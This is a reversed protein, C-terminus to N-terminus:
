PNQGGWGGGVGLFIIHERKKKDLFKAWSNIKQDSIFTQEFFIIKQRFKHIQQWKRHLFDNKWLVFQSGRGGGVIFVM